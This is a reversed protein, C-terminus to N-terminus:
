GSDSPLRSGNSLILKITTIKKILYTLVVVERHLIKDDTIPTVQEFQKQKADAMLAMNDDFTEKLPPYLANTKLETDNETLFASARENAKDRATQKKDM